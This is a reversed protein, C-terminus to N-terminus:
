LGTFCMHGVSSYITCKLLSLSTISDSYRSVVCIMSNSLIFLEWDLLWIKDSYIFDNHEFSRKPECQFSILVTRQSFM